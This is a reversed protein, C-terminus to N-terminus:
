EREGREVKDEEKDGGEVKSERTKSERERRKVRGGATSKGEGM